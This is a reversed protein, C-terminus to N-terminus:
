QQPRSVDSTDYVDIHGGSVDEPNGSFLTTGSSALGVGQLTNDLALAKLLEALRTREYVFLSRLSGFPASAVISDATIEVQTGLAGLDTPWQEITPQLQYQEHWTKGQMAFVYAGGNGVINARIKNPAGVALLQGDLAVSSGFSDDPQGDAATLRQQEVWHAGHRRFVYAAGQGAGEEPAGVALVNGSDNFEPLYGNSSSPPNSSPRLVAELKFLGNGKRRLVLIEAVSSQIDDASIAAVNRSLDINVGALVEAPFSVKQQQHWAGAGREFVYAEHRGNVALLTNGEIAVGFGFQDFETSDDPMVTATRTWVGDAGRTFIAVAGAHGGQGMGVALTDGDADMAEGFNNARLNDSDEASPRLVQQVPLQPLAQSQALLPVLVLASLIRAVTPAEM